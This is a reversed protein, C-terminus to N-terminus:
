AGHGVSMASRLGCSVSADKGVGRANADAGAGILAEVTDCRAQVSAAASSAAWGTEGFSNFLAPGGVAYHLPTYGTTAASKLLTRIASKSGQKIFLQTLQGFGHMASYHLVSHNCGYRATVDAGAKLLIRLVQAAEEPAYEAPQSKSLCLLPTLGFKPKARCNPDAGAKLLLQVSRPCPALAAFHLPSRGDGPHRTDYNAGAELLAHVADPQCTAAACRLPDGQWGDPHMGAALMMRVMQANRSRDRTDAMVEVLLSQEYSSGDAEERRVRQPNGQQEPLLQVARALSLAPGLAQLNHTTCASYLARHALEKAPSSM